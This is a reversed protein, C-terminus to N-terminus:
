DVSRDFKWCPRDIFMGQLLEPLSSGGRGFDNDFGGWLGGEPDIMLTMHSYEGVPLLPSGIAGSYAECWAPDANRAALVGDILLPNLNNPELIRLHSYQRLFEVAAASMEYGEAVLAKLDDTVDVSRGPYWGADRLLSTADM